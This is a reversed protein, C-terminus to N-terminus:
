SPPSYRQVEEIGFVRHGELTHEQVLSRCLQLHGPHRGAVWLLGDDILQLLGWETFSLSM